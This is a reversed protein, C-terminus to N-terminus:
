NIIFRKHLTKTFFTNNPKPVLTDEAKRLRMKYPNNQRPFDGSRNYFLKLVKFIFLNKLPMIKFHLFLPRSPEKKSSNSILKLFQKQQIYIVNMSSTYTGCWFSIGYEIRSQVISFYLMRLINEDCLDRLFYFLRLSSNLKSKLNSIHVKWNVEQDLTLGLYKISTTRGVEKCFTECRTPKTLCNVCKYLLYDNFYFKRRLSFNIYKTKDVNLCMKNETFWWQIAKLDYNIHNEMLNLDSYVYCLATDDAFSTLNGKFTGNCFDNIYILFLFAGLVSGQPVGQEITGMKSYSNQIKVCQKRNLLYSEFWNYPVGRIGIKWLKSLLIEHNVTDFAKRIDLFLGTVYKGENLGDYVEVMFHQLAHETSLNNRYGFQNSSLFNTTDFYKVLKSKMIKEFIKSFTSLLSIPRFNNCVTTLSSKHIPIVVANKLAAPFIGTEFSFNILFILVTMIKPYIAKIISSNIGDIGPSTGNKLSQIVSAIEQPMIPDIFMSRPQHKENFLNKCEFSNFNIPRNQNSDLNQAVNM